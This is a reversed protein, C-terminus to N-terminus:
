DVIAGAADCDLLADFHRDRCDVVFGHQRFDNAAHKGDIIEAM